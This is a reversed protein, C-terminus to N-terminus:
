KGNNIEKLIFNLKYGIAYLRASDEHSKHEISALSDFEEKLNITSVALANLEMANNQKGKQISRMSSLNSSVQSLTALEEKPSGSLSPSLFYETSFSLVVLLSVISILTFATGTPHREAYGQLMKRKEYLKLKKGISYGFDRAKEDMNKKNQKSM